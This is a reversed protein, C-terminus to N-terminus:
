RSARQNLRDDVLLQVNALHVYRDNKHSNDQGMKKQLIRVYVDRSKPSASLSELLSRLM